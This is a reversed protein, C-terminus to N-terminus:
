GTEAAGASQGHVFQGILYVDTDKLPIKIVFRHGNRFHVAHFLSFDHSLGEEIYTKGDVTTEYHYDAIVLAKGRAEEVSVRRLPPWQPFPCRPLPLFRAFPLGPLPSPGSVRYSLTAPFTMSYGSDALYMPRVTTQKLVEIDTGFSEALILLLFMM